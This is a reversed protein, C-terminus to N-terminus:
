RPSEPGHRSFSLWKLEILVTKFQPPRYAPPAKINTQTLTEIPKLFLVHDSAKTCRPTTKSLKHFPCSAIVIGFNTKSALPDFYSLRFVGFHTWGAAPARVAAISLQDDGADDSHQDLMDDPHPSGPADVGDSRPSTPEYVIPSPWAPPGPSPCATPTVPAEPSPPVSGAGGGPCGIPTGLPTPPQARPTSPPAPGPFPWDIPTSPAPLGLPTPPLSPARPTSSPAPGPVPLPPAVLASGLLKHRTEVTRPLPKPKPPPQPDDDGGDDRPSM